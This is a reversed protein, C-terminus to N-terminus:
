SSGGLRRRITAAFEEVAWYPGIQVMPRREDAVIRVLAVEDGEMHVARLVEEGNLLCQLMDPTLTCVVAVPVDRSM